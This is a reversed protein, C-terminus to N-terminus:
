LHAYGRLIGQYYEKKSNRFPYHKLYARRSAIARIREAFKHAIADKSCLRTSAWRHLDAEAKSKFLSSKDKYIRDLEAETYVIPQNPQKKFKDRLKENCMYCAGNSVRRLSYHGQRCPHRNKYYTLGKLKAQARSIYPFKEIDGVDVPM